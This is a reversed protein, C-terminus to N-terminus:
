QNFDPVLRAREIQEVPLEILEADPADDLRLVLLSRDASLGRLEGEFNRRGDLKRSLRVRV